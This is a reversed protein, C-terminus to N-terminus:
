DDKARIGRRDLACLITGTIFLGSGAGCLFEGLSAAPGTGLLLGALLFGLGIVALRRPRLSVPDVGELRAVESGLSAARIGMATMAGGAVCACLSFILQLGPLFPMGALLLMLCLAEFLAMISFFRQMRKLHAARSQTDTYLIFPSGDAPKALIVWPGWRCVVAIGLEEMLERYDAPLPGFGPALDAQYVRSGPTGKRFSCFGAGFRKLLWGQAAMENLWAAMKEKNFTFHFRIM